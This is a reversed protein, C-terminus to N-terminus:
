FLWCHNGDVYEYHAVTLLDSHLFWV